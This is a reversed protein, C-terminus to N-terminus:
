PKSSILAFRFRYEDSQLFGGAMFRYDHNTSNLKQMWFDFGGAEADRRLFGFYLMSVFASDLFRAQVEQTELFARLTGARGATQYGDVLQQRNAPSIGSKQILVDVFTQGTQAGNYANMFEQRSMFEQIFAERAAEQEAVTKSGNLRSVDRLWEAYSPRRGLGASYFLYVFYGRERFEDSSFFRFATDIRDCTQGAPCNGRMRSKWFQFGAAEPERGLFDIYQQRIFFDLDDIPNEAALQTDDDTITVTATDTSGLSAGQPNGLKISLQEGGEIYADNILVLPITKQQEGAAFNLTGVATAYDCRDSAFGTNTTQCPTMGSQDSTQYDVRIAASLDGTRVVTIDGHGAAESFNYSNSSFRVGPEDDNLIIGAGQADGIVANQANSLNLFFLENAENVTDGQVMVTVTKQTENPAFTLTGNAAQYDDGAQATVNAAQYDVKVTQSSAASLTVTFDFGKTGGDGETLSVDNISLSVSANANVQQGGTLTGTSSLFDSGGSYDATITHNGAPLDSVSCAAQGSTLAVNGCGSIASGGDMFSVTGAPSGAVSSVTATFTVSQGPTSPNLSSSLSVATAARAIQFSQSVNAAADYNSNGLQSATIICSGAGTLHVTGNAVECQGEAGFGVTLGSSATASLTFDADGFTKPSLAGFTVTQAGKAINFSRSVDQAPTYSLDGGQSATITCSGAGTLHVSNGTVTCDGSAAFSVPLGSSATAALTFDADGFSKNPPAGFTITQGLKNNTLSYTASSSSGELSAVVVYSGGISNATFAPATAIGRADTKVTADAAFTGSAGSAPPTFTVSANSVPNGYADIVAARLAAAFTSNVNASQGSGTTEPISAPEGATINFPDSVVGTLDAGSATLTYGLGAKNISLNSFTAIGGVAAVTETGSLTGSSPNNGIGITVNATTNVTNNSSDLVRVTVAPTIASGAAANTPQQSFVLHLQPPLVVSRVSEIIAESGTQYGGRYFGRARIYIDQQTPLEQGTLTFDNTTGIRTGNGLFTYNIGDLSQEFIVRSVQPAAGSRKWTVTTNTASLSQVAATDNKLRAFLNRPQGAISTFLGGVLIKGDPQLAISAVGDNPGPDFANDLTGDQNLRALYNRPQGGISNFLGGTLIRGDAQLVIASVLSSANPDFSTDLTGDPNLRAIRNRSVTAGGNPALATFLGGILIKGDPQVAISNVSNSANPDFSTDLTGNANLRAMRNRTVPAGSGYTIATFSGGILIKGDPLLALTHVTGNANPNFSADVTGNTNLRAIRSRFVTGGGNPAFTSFFGGVLIKGDAQVALATVVFSPNPDFSTDLTGDQNLRALYNRPQGAVSNAGFFSGGVLIKGDPQLAIAQVTANINPNFATDLTGDSNLRAINNRAVGLVQTFSGGILIKGDPQVPTSYVVEGIMNPNLTRDLSGNVNLRAIYNRPQGSMGSAGSFFGGALIKGDGQVALAYVDNDANPNFAADVTGNNNVRAIRNRAVSAGGNPALAIFTGGIIVKGDAQVAITRVSGNPNPNFYVDVTGDTNLRAISNRNISQGGNPAFTSFSGGVLISGDPQVVIENVTSNANPNFATDLTGDANLRAIFNRTMTAGGNPALTTFAGGILIKGDAQVAVTLVRNSNIVNPNFSAEVTGDPNLRAVLYRTVAAGGNPSLTTFAGGVLIKGDPQVAITTVTTNARPDFSTDLTGDANLRAIRLRSVSPGGNPALASFDGGILIKGDPQVAITHVSGNASPNFDEDVTGDPNLRAIFNRAASAAGNPNLATFDGGILIKGDPQVKVARVLNNANPDFGDLAANTGASVAQPNVAGGEDQNDASVSTGSPTFSAILALAFLIILNRRSKKM